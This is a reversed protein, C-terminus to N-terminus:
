VAEELSLRTELDLEFRGFKNIHLTLLPSLAALDRDTMRAAWGPDKLVQQIMLTNIYVLCAQLLHLCHLGIEQGEQRNTALEGNKGYFIFDNTGNWCEVVNLGANIERRLDESAIYRCLFITKLAKGLEVFAKYLPHQANNKTFRRLLSEADTLNMKLAVAHKVMADFQEEILVWNIARAAMVKELNPFAQGAEAKFLKQRNINKLRPMLEFGLLRCFAFAVVSQGHTDVYHRDVEMETCHRLVGQIMAGVESSSVRKFQCYICTANKEVHWYVMIGRGGYRMHWETLLNQDWAGFQKSDSACATTAEGWFQPLRENLTANVVQATTQRLGDISIFRRCIYLLDKYDDLPKSEMNKIGVNTGLGFLTLLLRRQLTPKDMHSRETGSRLFQTFNVRLDTEKLMDLLTTGDWRQNVERKLLALNVPDPLAEFPTITIRSGGKKREFKVKPNATITRDLSELSKTLEGRLSRTYARADQPIGLKEYYYSKRAEFDQPLDEEPDRYRRSGVVWIERCRLKDRLAKLVCIEYATRHIKVTDGEGEVVHPMWNAPVINKMPVQIGKPYTTGKQELHAKLIELAQMVPEHQTTTRFELNNLLDPLMRRYHSRYSRQLATRVKGRFVGSGEVERILAHLWKESAAPYIVDEVVGKPTGVSAKAMRYLKVMKGSAKLLAENVCEDIRGEAKKSMAQVTAVLLDVLHDTLDETRRHLFAAQLTAQLPPTHRRLEFPEEVAARRAYRELVKPPVGKFLDAPLGVGRALNLRSAGERISELGAKGPEGKLAQWDTWEVDEGQEESSRPLLLGNLRDFIERPLRQFLGETFKAEHRNVADNIIRKLREPGPPEIRLSRCRVLAAEWATERIQDPRQEQDLAEQVLWAELDQGDALTAERFGEHARISARHYEVSRGEWPYAAWAEAGVGVQGALYNVVESPVEKPDSPFRGEHQFFKLLVAFGIRTSGRKDKILSEEDPWVRWEAELEDHTWHRKMDGRQNVKDIGLISCQVGWAM